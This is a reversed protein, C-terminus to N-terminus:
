WSAVSHSVWARCSSSDLSFEGAHFEAHFLSGAKPTFLTSYRGAGFLQISGRSIPPSRPRPHHRHFRNAPDPPRKQDVLLRDPLDHALQPDRPLRHALRDPARRHLKAIFPLNLRLRAKMAASRPSNMDISCARTAIPWMIGFIPSRSTVLRRRAIMCITSSVEPPM